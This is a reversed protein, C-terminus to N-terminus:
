AHQLESDRGSGFGAFIRKQELERLLQEGMDVLQKNRWDLLWFIASVVVGMLAVALAVARPGQRLSQVYATALIGMALLFYNFMTVRQRAHYEFWDWAYQFQIELPGSPRSGPIPTEAGNNTANM